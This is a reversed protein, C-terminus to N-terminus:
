RRASHGSGARHSGILSSDAKVHDTRARYLGTLGESTGIRRVLHRQLANFRNKAVAATHPWQPLLDLYETLTIEGLEPNSSLSLLGLSRSLSPSPNYLFSLLYFSVFVQRLGREQAVNRRALTLPATM